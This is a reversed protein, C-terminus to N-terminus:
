FSAPHSPIAVYMYLIAVDHLSDIGGASTAPQMVLTAERGSETVNLMREHDAQQQLSTQVMMIM